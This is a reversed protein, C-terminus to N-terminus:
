MSPWGWRVWLLALRLMRSLSVEPPTPAGSDHERGMYLVFPILEVAGMCCPNYGCGALVDLNVAPTAVEETSAHRVSTVYLPSEYRYHYSGQRLQVTMGNPHVIQAERWDEACVKHQMTGNQDYSFTHDHCFTFDHHM